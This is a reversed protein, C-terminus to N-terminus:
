PRSKRDRRLFEPQGLGDTARAQRYADVRRRNNILEHSFAATHTPLERISPLSQIDRKATTKKM